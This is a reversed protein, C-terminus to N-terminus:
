MDEQDLDSDRQKLRWNSFSDRQIRRDNGKQDNTSFAGHTAAASARSRARRLDLHPMDKILLEGAETVTLRRLNKWRVVESTPKNMRGSFMNRRAM